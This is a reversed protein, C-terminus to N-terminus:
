FARGDLVTADPFSKTFGGLNGEVDFGLPRLRALLSTDNESRRTWHTFADQQGIDSWITLREVEPNLEVM